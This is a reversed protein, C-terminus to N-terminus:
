DTELTIEKRSRSFSLVFTQIQAFHFHAGVESAPGPWQALSPRRNIRYADNKEIMASFLFLAKGDSTFSKT